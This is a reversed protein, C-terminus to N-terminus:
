NNGASFAILAVRTGSPVACTLTNNGEVAIKEALGIRNSSPTVFEQVETIGTWTLNTASAAVIFAYIMHGVTATDIVITSQVSGVGSSRSDVDSVIVNVGSFVMIHTYPTANAHAVDVTGTAGTPVRVKWISNFTNWAGGETGAKALLQAPIGNVTVSAVQSDAAQATPIGIIVDRSANVPGIDVGAFSRTASSGSLTYGQRYGFPAVESEAKAWILTSGYFSKTIEQSGFFRKAITSNKLVPM